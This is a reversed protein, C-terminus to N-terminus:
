IRMFENCGDDEVHETQTIGKGSEDNWTLTVRISHQYNGILQIETKETVELKNIRYQTTSDKFTLPEKSEINIVINIATSKGINKLCLIHQVFQWKYQVEFHARKSEAAERELKEKELDKIKKDHKLYVWLSFILTLITIWDSWNM